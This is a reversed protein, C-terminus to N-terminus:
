HSETAFALAATRRQMFTLNWVGGVITLAVAAGIAIAGFTIWGSAYTGSSAKLIGLLSPLCFGGVGGAAGVLGTLVGIEKPFRQPVIQFVAGNGTGLVGFLTFIALECMGLSPRAAVVFAM